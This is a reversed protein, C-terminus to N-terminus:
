LFKRKSPKQRTDFFSLLVIINKRKYFKFYLRIQKVVLVSRINKRKNSVTFTKPNECIFNIHHESKSIFNNVDNQTWNNKLYTLNNEFTQKALASWIIECAM